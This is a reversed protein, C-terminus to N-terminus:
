APVVQFGLTKAQKIIRKKFQERHIKEQEAFVTEDFPKQNKILHFIIRAMKHATATIAKPSGHRARM